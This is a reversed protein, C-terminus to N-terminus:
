ALYIVSLLSIKMVIQVVKSNSLDGVIFTNEINENTWRSLLKKRDTKHVNKTQSLNGSVLNEENTKQRFWINKTPKQVKITSRLYCHKKAPKHVKKQQNRHYLNSRTWGNPLLQVLYGVSSLLPLKGSLKNSFDWAQDFLYQSTVDEWIGM